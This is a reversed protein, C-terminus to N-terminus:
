RYNAKDNTQGECVATFRVWQRCSSPPTRSWRSNGTTAAHQALDPTSLVANRDLLSLVTVIADSLEWEMALGRKATDTERGGKWTM